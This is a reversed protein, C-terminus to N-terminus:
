KKEMEEVAKEVARSGKKRLEGSLKAYYKMTDPTVSPGVEELAALFHSKRVEVANMDERLALRGAKRCISAIDAGTYQDTREVLRDLDVDEALPMKGAHVAFIKRRSAADPVPVMILED